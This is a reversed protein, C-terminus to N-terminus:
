ILLVLRRSCKPLFSNRAFFGHTRKRKIHSPQYTRKPLLLMTASSSGEGDPLFFRLSPLGCPYLFAESAVKESAGGSCELLHFSTDFNSSSPCLQPPIRSSQLFLSQTSSPKGHLVQSFLRGVLSTGTRALTKSWM